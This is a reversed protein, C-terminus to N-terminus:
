GQRQPLRDSRTMRELLAVASQKGKIASATVAALLQQRIIEPGHLLERAFHKNLTDVDIGVAAAIDIKAMGIYATVMVSERQDATPKFAPRVM